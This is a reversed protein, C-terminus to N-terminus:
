FYLLINLDVTTHTACNWRCCHTLLYLSPNVPKFITEVGRFSNIHTVLSNCVKERPIKQFATKKEVSTTGLSNQLVYGCVGIFEPVGEDM